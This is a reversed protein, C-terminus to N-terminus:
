KKILEDLKSYLEELTGENEIKFDAQKGLKPIGVETKEKEQSVFHKYDMSADDTKEHRQKYRAFRTKPSSTVYIIKAGLKKIDIMEDMRIGNVVVMSADSREVRSVVARGLVGNGFIKRLGLGLDIENRRSIPLNLLRLIEDLVHSFKVHDAKYKKVLYNAAADKGAFKEGVLGFILKKHSKLSSKM